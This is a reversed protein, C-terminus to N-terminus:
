IKHNSSIRNFKQETCSRDKHPNISPSLQAPDITMVPEGKKHTTIRM